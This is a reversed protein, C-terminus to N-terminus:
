QKNFKFYNNTIIILPIFAYSNNGKGNFLTNTSNIVGLMIEKNDYISLILSDNREKRIGSIRFISRATDQGLYFVIDNNDEFLISAPLSSSVITYNSNLGVYGKWFSQNTKAIPTSNKKCSITIHLIFLLYSFKIYRIM